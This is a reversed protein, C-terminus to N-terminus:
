VVNKKYKAEYPSYPKFQVTVYALVHTYALMHTHTTHVWGM